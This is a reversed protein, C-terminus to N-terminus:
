EQGAYVSPGLLGALRNPALQQLGLLEDRALLRRAQDSLLGLQYNPGLRQQVPSSLIASRAAVRAAPLAYLAPNVTGGLAGGVLFDTVSFPTSFGAEPVGTVSSTLGSGKTSQSFAAIKELDGSLPRGKSLQQALKRADVLNVGDVLADEVSHSKAILERAKRFQQLMAAGDKGMVSLQREIQGELVKAIERKAIAVGEDGQRFAASSEKRLNKIADLADAADFSPVKFKEVLQPVQSDFAGPFSRSAGTYSAAINDLQQVFDADAAVSKVARIPEYGRQFAENRLGQLREPSLEVDDALGLARRALKETVPQNKLAAAQNTKQKGSLGEALRSVLGGGSISPPAVYGEAKGAAIAADRGAFQSQQVSKAAARAELADGLMHAGKSTAGGLGAGIATNQLRSEDTGVPQVAGMAGGIMAAGKVTSGGPIFLAQALNGSINGAMGAGTDMLAADRKRAEDVEERSVLGLLQGVGRGTDVISKGVGAAFKDFGSMGDTPDYKQQPQAQRAARVADALVGAARADGARHANMFASELEQLTAM